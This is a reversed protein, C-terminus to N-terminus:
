ALVVIKITMEPHVSCTMYYTGPKSWVGTTYSQNSQMLIRDTVPENGPPALLGGQGAGIIHIFRSDNTFTLRDGRHITVVKTSYGEHGMGIAGPAPSDLAHGIAPTLIGAVLLPVGLLIKPLAM